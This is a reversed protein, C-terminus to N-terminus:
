PRLAPPLKELEVRDGPAVGVESFRGQNVELAYRAPSRSRIPTLTLPEMDYIELIRGGASIFAISLPLPTDKMWFSRPASEPFVFLMGEDPGLEQRFMLGRAREDETVALEVRFAHDGVPLLVRDDARTCALPLLIVILLAIPLLFAPRDSIRM